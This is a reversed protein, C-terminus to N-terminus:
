HSKGHSGHPNQTDSRNEESSLEDNLLCALLLSLDDDTRAAVRPSKLFSELATTKDSKDPATELFGFLPRFFGSHPTFEPYKFALLQLGDCLVAAYRIPGTRVEIRAQELASDATLFMTENLHETLPPRVLVAYTGPEAGTVAAGDGIQAAAVRTRSLVAVILTSALERSRVQRRNAEALVAERARRLVERLMGSWDADLGSARTSIVEEALCRLATGVATAAGVEALSASGSGDALAVLLLGGPLLRWEM